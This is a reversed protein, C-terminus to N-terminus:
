GLDDDDYAAATQLNLMWLPYLVFLQTFLSGLCIVTFLMEGSLAGVLTTLVTVGAMLVFTVVRPNVFFFLMTLGLVILLVANLTSVM